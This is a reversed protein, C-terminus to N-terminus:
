ILKDELRHRPTQRINSVAFGVAMIFQPYSNGFLSKRLLSLHKQSQIAAVSISFNLGLETLSLMLNQSARGANIWANKSDKSTSIVLIGAASSFTSLTKKAMIQATNLFRIVFPTILSLIDHFGYAYGPIGDKRKSYNNIVWKSLEYRFSRNSAIKKVANSTVTSIYEKEAAEFYSVKVDPFNVRNLTYNIENSNLSKSTFIGRYTARKSIAHALGQYSRNFNPYRRNLNKFYIKAIMNADSTHYSVKDFVGYYKSITVITEILCGISIYLNRKDPDAETLFLEPDAFISCSNDYIKFKWPQTNHTSPSLIGHQLIYKIKDEASKAKTFTDKDTIDSSEIRVM